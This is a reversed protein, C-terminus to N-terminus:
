QAMGRGTINALHQDIANEDWVPKRPSIYSRRPFKGAKELRLLQSNSLSIGRTALGKRSLLKVQILNPM